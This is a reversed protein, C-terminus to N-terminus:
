GPMSAGWRPLARRLHRDHRKLGTTSWKAARHRPGSRASPQPVSGRKKVKALVSAPPPRERGPAAQHPWFRFGIAGSRPRRSRPQHVKWHRAHVVLPSAAHRGQGTVSGAFSPCPPRAAHGRREGPRARVCVPPPHHVLSADARAPCQRARARCHRACTGTTDATAPPPGRLPVTTAGPAQPLRPWQAASNAQTRASAPPPPHNVLSADARAPCQRAGPAATGPALAPPSRHRTTTWYPLASTVPPAPRSRPWSALRSRPGACPRSIM